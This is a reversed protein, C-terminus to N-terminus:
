VAVPARLRGTEAGDREGRERDDGRHDREPEIGPHPREFGLAVLGQAGVGLDFARRGFGLLPRRLGILAGGLGYTISTLNLFGLYAHGLMDLGNLM